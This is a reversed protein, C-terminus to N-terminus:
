AVAATRAADRPDLVRQVLDIGRNVVVVLATAVLVYAQVVPYDQAAIADVAYLGIGPWSFVAETIVSGTILSAFAMGALTLVPSTAPRLVHRVLRRGPTAGRAAAAVAYLRGGEAILSARLVRSMTPCIAVGLVLAPLWIREATAPGAVPYGFWATGLQLAITGLLFSPVAVTVLTILRIGQDAPSGPRRSAVLALGGAVVVGIVFGAAGLGVTATLRDAMEALVPRGTLYSTGWDGALMRGLWDVYQEFLPRDLGLEALREARIRDVDAQLLGAGGMQGLQVDVPDGPASRVLAFVLVSAVLLLAATGAVTRLIARGM